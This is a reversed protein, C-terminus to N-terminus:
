QLLLRVDHAIEDAKKGYQVFLRVRGQPDFIYSAATHDMTYNDPSKGAVKQYVVKFEQAVKATQAADGRLALFHPDFNPVYAALLAQTDREPDITVFLVQVREADKGLAKMANAMEVMTTPCVDPCQTYGFFIVVAKGKFDTLTRATGLQDTLSLERAFSAGTIDTNKFQPAEKQCATLVLSVCMVALATRWMKSVTLLKM